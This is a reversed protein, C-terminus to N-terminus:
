SGDRCSAAVGRLRIAASVPAMAARPERASLWQEGGERSSRPRRAGAQTGAGQLSAIVGYVLSRTVLLTVKMAVARHEVATRETHPAATPAVSESM